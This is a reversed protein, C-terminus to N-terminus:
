FLDWRAVWWAVGYPADAYSVDAAIRRGRAVEALVHFGPAGECWLEHALTPDLTALTDVDGSRLAHDISDDFALAGPHLHGPAKEGRCATGDAMVVLATPGTEEAQEVVGAATYPLAIQPDFPTGGLLHRAVRHGLPETVGRASNLESVPAAVVVIHEPGTALLKDVATACAARLEPVPDTASLSPLLARPSPLVLVSEIM